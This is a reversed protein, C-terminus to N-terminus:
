FQKLFRLDGSLLLRIDDIGFKFMTLRDLGIGFAFGQFKGPNLGANKLVNPHVMGAGAVELWGSGKCVSCGKGSCFTCSIDLEIGPEVFPFYSPRIRSKLKQEFVAEFFSLLTGQLDALTTTQDVIFGEVQTFTTEHTRDTAEFRYVRGINVVRLPPKRKRMTRVQMNSTHTRLLLKEESRGAISSDKFKKPPKLWFTQWMDRAPHDKPINLLEFNNEDDDIEQGRELDFGMSVFVDEVERRIQETPHLNGYPRATVPETVDIKETDALKELAQEDILTKKDRLTQELDQRFQNLVPGLEKKQAVALDKLGRLALPLVGKRGLYELRLKELDQANKIKVLLVDVKKQLTKVKAVSDIKTSNQNAM